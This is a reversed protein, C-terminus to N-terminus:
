SSELGVHWKNATPIVYEDPFNRPRYELRLFSKHVGYRDIYRYGLGVLHNMTLITKVDGDSTLITSLNIHPREPTRFSRVVVDKFLPVDSILLSDNDLRSLSYYYNTDPQLGLIRITKTDTDNSFHGIPVRRVFKKGDETTSFDSNNSLVLYLDVSEEPRSILRQYDNPVLTIAASNYNARVTQPYTELTTVLLPQDIRSDANYIAM